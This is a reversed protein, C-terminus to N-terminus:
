VDRKAQEEWLDSLVIGEMTAQLDDYDQSSMDYGRPMFEDLDITPLEGNDLAQNIISHSAGYALRKLQEQTLSMM